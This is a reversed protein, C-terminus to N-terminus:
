YWTPRHPGLAVNKRNDTASERTDTSWFWAGVEFLFLTGVGALLYMLDEM